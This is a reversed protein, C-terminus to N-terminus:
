SVENKKTSMTEVLDESKKVVGRVFEIEISISNFKNYTNEISNVKVAIISLVNEM